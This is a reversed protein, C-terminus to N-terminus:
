EKGFMQQQRGFMLNKISSRIEPYTSGLVQGTTNVIEKQLFIYYEELTTVKNLNMENYLFFKLLSLDVWDDNLDVSKFDLSKVSRDSTIKIEFIGNSYITLYDGFDNSEICQVNKFGNLTLFDVILKEYNM